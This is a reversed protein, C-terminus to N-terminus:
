ISVYFIAAACILVYFGSRACNYYIFEVNIKINQFYNCTKLVKDYQYTCNVETAIFVYSQCRACNLYTVTGREVFFFTVTSQM